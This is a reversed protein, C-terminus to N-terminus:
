EPRRLDAVMEESRGFRDEVRINLRVISPTPTSVIVNAAVVDPELRIQQEASAKLKRLVDPRILGKLAQGFGYGPLHFFQGLGTTARRFVRKRLNARGSDTAWDGVDDIQYTGLPSDPGPADRPMFPNALDVNQDRQAAPVVLVRARLFTEFDAFSCPSLAGGSAGAVSSAATIRYSAEGTLEGDFYVRIVRSSVRAVFQVLLLRAGPSRASLTWNAPNTADRVDGPDASRPPVSFTVDVANLSVQRASEVTLGYGSGFASAGFGGSGFAGACGIM